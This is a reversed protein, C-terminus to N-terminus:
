PHSTVASILFPSAPDHCETEPVEGSTELEAQGTRPSHGPEPAAEEEPKEQGKGEAGGPPSQPTEQPVAGKEPPKEDQSKVGDEELEALEEVQEQAPTEGSPTGDKAESGPAAPPESAEGRGDPTAGEWAPGKEEPKETWSATRRLPREERPGPSRRGEKGVAGEGKPPFVEDGDEERAGNEQPSGAARFDGLEGCDSQSRRFRRSPPRRKISGRTRVKNYCPLHSGEPPQDFSVPVKEPESPRSRVGPSSPTSPPSHFPSVAAKLGPSRPSARPLLAAPDFALNAQLKEILPSSKVKVKPPQSASPPSKAEDSHGPEAKPPFLLLSCPPKRRPKSAPVAPMEKAAAQEQFRGALQAVSPAASPAVSASAETPREEMDEPAVGSSRGPRPERARQGRSEGRRTGCRFLCQGRGPRVGNIHGFM